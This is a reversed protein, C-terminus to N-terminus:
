KTAKTLKSFFHGFNTARFTQFSLWQGTIDRVRITGKRRELHVQIRRTGDPRVESWAVNSIMVNDRRNGRWKRSNVTHVHRLLLPGVSRMRGLPIDFLRTVYKYRLKAGNQCEHCLGDEIRWEAGCYVCLATEGSM